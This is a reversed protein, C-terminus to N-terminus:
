QSLGGELLPASWYQKLLGWDRGAATSAADSRFGVKGWRACNLAVVGYKECPPARHATLLDPTIARVKNLEHLRPAVGGVPTLAALTCNGRTCEGQRSSPM